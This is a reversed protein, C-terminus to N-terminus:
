SARKRRSGPLHGGRPKGHRHTDDTRLSPSEVQGLEAGEHDLLSAEHITEDTLDVDDWEHTPAEDPLEVPKKHLRSRARPFESALKGVRLSRTLAREWGEPDLEYDASLEGGAEGEWDEQGASSAEDAAPWESVRQQEIANSLFQSGLDEADISLGSEPPAISGFDDSATRPYATIEGHEKLKQAAASVRAAVKKQRAMAGEGM